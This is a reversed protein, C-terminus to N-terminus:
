QPKLEFLVGRNDTGGYYTTGYLNGKADRIVGAFPDGGDAGGPFSYLVAINGAPDLKYVVGQGDGYAGGGGATTGYLNGAANRTVGAFPLAGDYGDFSCLVTEQGSADLRYVVGVNGTGGAYTTGYLNGASDCIVGSYPIGGDAGGTFSYLVTYNGAADLRFAVGCSPPQGEVVPPCPTGHFTATGYLNGAPDRILGALPEFGDAGGTFSYLVTEQGSRDLKYVVGANAAGGASTTGYLNGASDGIVGAYPQGGDAGGTFNFLVSYQGASDLKYVVGQGSTGGVTATGYLNGASDGIVGVVPYAGTTPAFNHLVVETTSQAQAPVLAGLMWMLGLLGTGKSKIAETVLRAGDCDPARVAILIRGIQGLKAAIEAYRTRGDATAALSSPHSAGPEPLQPKLLAGKSGPIRLV